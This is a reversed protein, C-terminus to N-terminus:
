FDGISGGIDDSYSVDGGSPSAIPDGIAVL